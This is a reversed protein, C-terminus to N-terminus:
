KGGNIIANIIASITVVIAIVPLIVVGVALSWELAIQGGLAILYGLGKGLGIFLGLGFFAVVALIAFGVLTFFGDLVTPEKTGPGTPFGQVVTGEKVEAVVPTAPEPKGKVDSYATITTKPSKAPFLYALAAVTFKWETACQWVFILTVLILIFYEIFM